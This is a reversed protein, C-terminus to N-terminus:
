VEKYRVGARIYIGGTLPVGSARGAVQLIYNRDEDTLDQAAKLARCIMLVDSTSNCVSAVAEIDGKHTQGGATQPPPQAFVLEPEPEPEQPTHNEIHDRLVGAVAGLATGQNELRDLVDKNVHTRDAVANTELIDLRVALEALWELVEPFQVDRIDDIAKNLEAVTVRKKKPAEIPESLTKINDQDDYDTAEFQEAPEQEDM